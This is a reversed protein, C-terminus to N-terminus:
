PGTKRLFQVALLLDRKKNDHIPYPNRSWPDWPTRRVDIYVYMYVYVVAYVIAIVIVITIM